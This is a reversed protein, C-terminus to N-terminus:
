GMKIYYDLHKDTNKTKKGLIVKNWRGLLSFIVEDMRTAKTHEPMAGM